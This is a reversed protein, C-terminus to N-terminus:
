RYTREKTKFISDIGEIFLKDRDEQEKQLAERREEAKKVEDDESKQKLTEQLQKFEEFAKATDIGSSNFTSTSQLNVDVYGEGDQQISNSDSNTSPLAIDVDSKIAQQIQNVYASNTGGLADKAGSGFYGNVFSNVNGKSKTWIDKIMNLSANGTHIPNYIDNQGNDAYVKFNDYKGGAEKALIQGIGIAGSVNPKYANINQGYASERQLTAKMVKILTPDNTKSLIMSDIESKSLKKANLNKWNPM